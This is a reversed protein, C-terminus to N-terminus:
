RLDNFGLRSTKNECNSLAKFLEGILYISGTFLIPKDQTYNDIFEGDNFLNNIEHHYVKGIFNPPLSEKLNAYGCANPQDPVLFHFSEAYKALMPVLIKSRDEGVVGLFIDLKEGKLELDVLLALEQTLFHAGAQNHTADFILRVRNKYSIKQWRAAWEVNLLAHKRNKENFPISNSLVETVLIALGTNLRQCKGDLSCLPIEEPDTWRDTYTFMRSSLFVAKESFVKLLNTQMFGVIVPVNAKIIGAKEKAILDETNGLIDCHDLGISTIVSAIPNLINTSDLRGGLGTEIIALDVQERKFYLFALATIFEFFTPYDESGVGIIPDIISRIQEVMEILDEVPIPVRNTQVREGLYILHPSTFLGVKLGQFRYMSELIAATSGKGNTGAIHISKFSKEPNGLLQSLLRMRDLGYKSGRNRLQFLFNCTREYPKM